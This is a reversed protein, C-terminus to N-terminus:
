LFRRLWALEAKMWSNSHGGGQTQVTVKNPAEETDSNSGTNPNFRIFLGEIGNEVM